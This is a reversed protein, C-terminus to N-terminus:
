KYFESNISVSALALTDFCDKVCGSKEKQCGFGLDPV